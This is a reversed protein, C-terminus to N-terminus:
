RSRRSPTPLCLDLLGQEGPVHETGRVDCEIFDCIVVEVAPRVGRWEDRYGSTDIGCSPWLQIGTAATFRQYETDGGHGTFGRQGSYRFPASTQPVLFVGRNALRAGVAIAHYEFRRGQYGPANSSRACAGFPPNAIACDFRELGM